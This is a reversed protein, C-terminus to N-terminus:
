APQAEPQKGALRDRYPRLWKEVAEIDCDPWGEPLPPPVCPDDLWHTLIVDPGLKPVSGNTTFEGKYWRYSGRSYGADKEGVIIVLCEGIWGECPPDYLLVSRWQKERIQTMQM